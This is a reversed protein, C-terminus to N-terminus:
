KNLNNNKRILERIDVYGPKLSEFERFVQHGWWIASEDICKLCCNKNFNGEQRTLGIVVEQESIVLAIRLPTDKLPKINFRINSLEEDTKFAYAHSIIYQAFSLPVIVEFASKQNMMTKIMDECNPHLYICISEVSGERMMAEEMTETALFPNINDAKVLEVNKVFPLTGLAQLNDNDVLHNNFFNSFNYIFEINNNLLLINLLKYRTHTELFYEDRQKFIYGHEELKNLNSTISSYSLQIKEHIESVTAPEDYLSILIELRVKSNTLFKIEEKVDGAYKYYSYM